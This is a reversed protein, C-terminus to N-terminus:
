HRQCHLWPALWCVLQEIKILLEHLGEMQKGRRWVGAFDGVGAFQPPEQAFPEIGNMGECGFGHFGRGARPALKPLPLGSALPWIEPCSSARRLFYSQLQM